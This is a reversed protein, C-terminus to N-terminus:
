SGSLGYKDLWAKFETLPMFQVNDPFMEKKLPSDTNPVVVKLGTDFIDGDPEGLKPLMEKVVAQDDQALAKLLKITEFGMAYPNQVVMADINGQGMATVAGPDADFTVVTFDQRRKQETIVDTIAPANYSWIGVLTNLTPHNRLANRVNDRARTPDMDDAMLDKRVFSEGAGRDFGGTRDTVNQASPIGFFAVYEGGAPRLGHACLGLVRGGESNDTGIFATRTDRLTSREMDSDVTLVQVGKARLNRMEDAIAVNDASTVSIAVGAVDSQTGYQKLRDVQGEPTANNVEFVATFGAASLQLEREADLMGARCADWFPANGNTVIILRKLQGPNTQPTQSDTSGSPTGLTPTESPTEKKIDEACGSLMLGLVALWKYSGVPRVLKLLLNAM